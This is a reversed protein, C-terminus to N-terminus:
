QPRQISKFEDRTVISAFLSRLNAGNAAQSRVSEIVEADSTVDARGFSYRFYNRAFCREVEGSELVYQQAQAVTSIAREQLTALKVVVSTDLPKEGLSTGADNRVVENRRVRGLADFGEHVFGWPNIKGTHCDVCATGKMETIRETRQRTTLVGSLDAAANTQNMAPPPMEQCTLSRLVKAGRQIPLTTDSSGNVLVAIRTMLGVREVETFLPPTGSGNWVPTNYLAAIDATRAFSHRDTVVQQLSGNRGAVYSVMDLLETIAADRSTALPKFNGAFADFKANGVKGNMAVLDDLELWQRFFSRLGNDARADAILRAVQKAYVSPQLLAGSDAETRLAADPITDWLHLSLRAALEHANLPVCAADTTAAAGGREVVFYSQPSAIMTALVKTVATRDTTGGAAKTYVAVEADTLPQRFLIRGAKRVFAEMCATGTCNGVITAARADTSAMDAALAQAVTYISSVQRSAVTPDLRYYGQHRASEPNVSADLPFQATDVVLTQIRGALGGDTILAGSWDTLANVFQARTLRRPRSSSYCGPSATADGAAAAVATARVTAHPDVPLTSLPAKTAAATSAKKAADGSHIWRAASDNGGGCGLLLTSCLAALLM